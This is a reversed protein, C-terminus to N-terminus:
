RRIWALPWTVIFRAWIGAKVLWRLPPKHGAAQFKTYFRQMGRHKQWHVWGRRSRSSLGQDHFVRASPVLLCHMGRRAIRYMLDLDECHMGYSEDLGGMELFLQRRLMMCAGSVADAKATESPMRGTQDVGRFSPFWRGLRWLGSFTMFSNLPTPFQRLSAKMPRGRRDVVVPGALAAGPDRDLANVLEAVSGPLVECDPNLILLYRAEGGLRNVAANVARAFGLNTENVRIELNESYAASRRLNDVSHDTSANDVVTVRTAVSQTFVASVCRALADGANYNIIVTEFVPTNGAGPM